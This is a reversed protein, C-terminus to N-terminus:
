SVTILHRMEDVMRESIGTVDALEDVSRYRGVEARHAVIRDALAPGIGPLRGLEDATAANIDLPGSTVPEFEGELPVEIVSGDLIPASLQGASLAAEGTIGGAADVADQVTSGVPLVYVGPRTVAGGVQVRATTPDDLPVVEIVVTDSPSTITSILLWGGVVILAVTAFPVIFPNGRFSSVVRGLAGLM